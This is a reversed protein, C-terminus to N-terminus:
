GGLFHSQAHAHISWTIGGVCNSEEARPSGSYLRRSQPSSNPASLLGFPLAKDVYLQNEFQMGMLHTDSLHVPINRYAQKIDCKAQLTGQSLRLIRVAEDVSSYTLTSLDKSIGDNVSQNSPHSLHLILRWQNEQNRKPIVGFRSIILGDPCRTLHM